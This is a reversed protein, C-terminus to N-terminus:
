GAAIQNLALEKCKALDDWDSSYGWTVKTGPM